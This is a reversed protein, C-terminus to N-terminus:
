AALGRSEQNLDFPNTPPVLPFGDKSLNLYVDLRVVRVLVALRKNEDYDVRNSVHRIRAKQFSLHRTWLGDLAAGKVHPEIHDFWLQPRDLLRNPDAASQEHFQWDTLARTQQPLQDLAAKVAPAPDCVNASQARANGLALGVWLLSFCLWVKLLVIFSSRQTEM